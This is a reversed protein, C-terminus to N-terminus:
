SKRQRAGGITHDRAFISLRFEFLRKKEQELLVRSASLTILAFFKRVADAALPGGPAGRLIVRLSAGPRNAADKDLRHNASASLESM